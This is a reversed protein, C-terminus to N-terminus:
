KLYAIVEGGVRNEWCEKINMIGNRTRIIAISYPYDNLYTQIQKTNIVIRQKVSSVTKIEKIVCGGQMDYSLFIKFENDVTNQTYGSIFHAKQLIKLIMELDKTKTFTFYLKKQEAAFQLHQFFLKVQDISMFKYSIPKRLGYQNNNKM